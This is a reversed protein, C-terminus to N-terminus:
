TLKESSKRTRSLHKDQAKALIEGTTLSDKTFHQIAYIATMATDALEALMNKYADTNRSKRPNQGTFSILESIAEGIEEIVKSIRAWDQALPQNAYDESVNNDLWEDVATVINIDIM